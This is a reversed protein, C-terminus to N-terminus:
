PAPSRTESSQPSVQAVHDQAVLEHLKGDGALAPAHPLDKQRFSQALLQQGQM